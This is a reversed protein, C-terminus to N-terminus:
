GRLVLVPCHALRVVREAVSGILLRALGKRGHSPLMILETRNAEAYKAIETAPTGFIIEFQIGAYQKGSFKNRLLELLRETRKEDTEVTWGVMLNGESPVADPAVHLVTLQNPSDVLNLAEDVAQTSEESFDIPVLVRKLHLAVMM